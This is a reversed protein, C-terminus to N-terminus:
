YCGQQNNGAEILRADPDDDVCHLTLRIASAPILGPAREPWEIITIWPPEFYDRVGLMEIEDADDLRYWDMHAIQCDRGDYTQILAFTPSPLAEDTVGLARMLARAFVSKGAGLEGSLAIVQGPKLEGALKRACAVTAAENQLGTQTM